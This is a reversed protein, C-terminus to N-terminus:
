QKYVQRLIRRWKLGAMSRCAKIMGLYQAAFKYELLWKDSASVIRYFQYKMVSEIFKRLIWRPISFLLRGDPVGYAFVHTMGQGVYYRWIHAENAREPPVFHNVRATGIYMGGGHILKAEKLFCTEEGALMGSGIRGLSPDFLMGNLLSSNIAFNAGTPLRSDPYRNCDEGFDNVGFVIDVLDISDLLWKPPQSAFYPLIRGGYFPFEPWRTFANAYASLFSPHVFADDDIFILYDGDFENIALNRANSLGQKKECFYKIPLRDVYQRTIEATNDTSNNDILLVEFLYNEEYEMSLISELCQKLIDSRNYTCIAIGIKKNTMAM